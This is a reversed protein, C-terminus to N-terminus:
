VRTGQTVHCGIVHHCRYRGRGYRAQRRLRLVETTNEWVRRVIEPLDVIAKEVGETDYPLAIQYLDRPIYEEFYTTVRPQMYIPICGM